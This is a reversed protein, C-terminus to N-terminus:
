NCTCVFTNPDQADACTGFDGDSKICVIAGTGDGSVGSVSAEGTIDVDTASVNVVDTGGAILDVQDAGASGVGTNTDGTFSYSPVTSSKYVTQVIGASTVRCSDTGNQQILLPYNVASVNNLQLIPQVTGSTEEFQVLPASGSSSRRVYLGKGNVPNLEMVVDAGDGVIDVLASPAQNRIGVMNLGADVHFMYQESDSSITTDYDGLSSNVTFTGGNFASAASGSLGDAFIKHGLISQTTNNVLGRSIGVGMDPLNLTHTTGASTWAPTTGSDDVGLTQTAGTLTNFTTIGTGAGGTTNWIAAGATVDVASYTMDNTTDVWLSGLGYGDLIDDNPDPASTAGRNDRLVTYHGASTKLLFGKSSALFDNDVVGGAGAPIPVVVSLNVGSGTVTVTYNDSAGYFQLLGYAGLTTGYPTACNPDACASNGGAGTITVTADYIPRGQANRFYIPPSPEYAWAASAVLLALLVLLKKM